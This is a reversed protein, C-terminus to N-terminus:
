PCPHQPTPSEYEFASHVSFCCGPNREVDWDPGGDMQDTPHDVIRLQRQRTEVRGRRGVRSQCPCAGFQALPKGSGTQHHQRCFNATTPGFLGNMEQVLQYSPSSCATPRSARRWFRTTEATPFSKVPGSWPWRSARGAGCLQQNPYLSAVCKRVREKIRHRPFFM